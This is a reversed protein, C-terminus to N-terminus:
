IFLGHDQDKDSALKGSDKADKYALKALKYAGYGVAVWALPHAVATAVVAGIIGATGGVKLAAAGPDTEKAM